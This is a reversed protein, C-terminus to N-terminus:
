KVATGSGSVSKLSFLFPIPYLLPTSKAETQLDVLKGAGEAKATNTLMWVLTEINATDKSEELPAGEVSGTLIPKSGLFYIGSFQARSM